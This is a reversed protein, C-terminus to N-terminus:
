NWVRKIMTMRKTVTFNGAKIQYLYVGTGVNRGFDDNGQWTEAYSGALVSCRAVLTRMLSRPFM